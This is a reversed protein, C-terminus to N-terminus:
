NTQLNNGLRIANSNLVCLYNGKNNVGTAALIM